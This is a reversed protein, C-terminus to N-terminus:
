RSPQIQTTMVKANGPLWRLSSAVFMDACIGGTLGCRTIKCQPKLQHLNTLNLLARESEQCIRTM